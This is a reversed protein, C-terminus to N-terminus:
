RERGDRKGKSRSLLRVDRRPVCRERPSRQLDGCPRETVCAYPLTDSRDPSSNLIANSVDETMTVRTGGREPQLDFTIRASPFPRARAHLELRTPRRSDVVTTDDKIV